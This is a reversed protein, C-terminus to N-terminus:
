GSIILGSGVRVEDIILSNKQEAEWFNLWWGKGEGRTTSFTRSPVVRVMSMKHKRYTSPLYKWIMRCSRKLNPWRTFRFSWSRSARSLTKETKPLKRMWFMKKNCMWSWRVPLLRGACIQWQHMTRHITHTEVFCYVVSSTLGPQPEFGPRGFSVGASSESSWSSASWHDKWTINGIHQIFDM